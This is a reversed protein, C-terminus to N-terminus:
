LLLMGTTSGATTGGTGNNNGGGGNNNSPNGSVYAGVIINGTKTMTITNTVVVDNSNPAYTYLKAFNGAQDLHYM